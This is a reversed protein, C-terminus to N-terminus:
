DPIQGIIIEIIIGNKIESESILFGVLGIPSIAESTGNADIITIGARIVAISIGAHCIAREIRILM